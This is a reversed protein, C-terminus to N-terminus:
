GGGEYNRVPWRTGRCDLTKPSGSDYSTRPDVGAKLMAAYVYPKFSSGPQRRGQSALDFELSSDLGGFLVRIAGDGPQVSAIATAPDGEEGLLGEVAAVAADYAKVDLTTEVTYGGTFVQKGRAEESEGLETLGTAERGVYAVFHPAKGTTGAGAGPKRPVVELPSASAEAAQAETLWGQRDMNRLVQDRRERVEEPRIFPDLSSPARIKGALTAAQAPNLEPPTVGFFTSSAAAIGYAGEGFYVQNLYRELLEDKSYRQELRSAYLVEKFKRFFTHQDGTYNLKALQQTITSGGQPRGAVTNYMARFIATPDVGSHSYFDADEAALVAQTVHPPLQAIQVPDRVEAGLLGVETGDDALVRTAQSLGDFGSISPAFPSAVFLVIRSTVTAAATRFPPIVIVLLFVALAGLGAKLWPFGGERENWRSFLFDSM